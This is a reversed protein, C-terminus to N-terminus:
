ITSAYYGYVIYAVELYLRVTVDEPIKVTPMQSM